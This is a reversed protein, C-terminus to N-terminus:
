APKRLRRPDRLQIGSALKGLRSASAPPTTGRAGRVPPREGLAAFMALADDYMTEFSPTHPGADRRIRAIGGEISADVAANSPAYGRHPLIMARMVGRILTQWVGDGIVVTSLIRVSGNLNRIRRDNEMRADRDPPDATPLIIMLVVIGDGRRAALADIIDFVWRTRPLRAPAKWVMTMLDGRVVAAVGDFVRVEGDV